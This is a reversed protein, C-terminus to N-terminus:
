GEFGIMQANERISDDQPGLGTKNSCALSFMVAVRTDRPQDIRYPRCASGAPWCTRFGFFFAAECPPPWSLSPDPVGSALHVAPIDSRPSTGAAQLDKRAGTWDPDGAGRVNCFWVIKASLGSMGSANKRFQASDPRDPFSGAQVRGKRRGAEPEGPWPASHSRWGCLRKEVPEAEDWAGPHNQITPNIMSNVMPDITNRDDISRSATRLRREDACASMAMKRPSMMGAMSATKM